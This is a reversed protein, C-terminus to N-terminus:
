RTKHFLAPSTISFVNHAIPLVHFPDIKTVVSEPDTKYRTM